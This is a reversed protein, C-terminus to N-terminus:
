RIPTGPTRRPTARIMTRGFAVFALAKSLESDVALVSRRQLNKEFLIRADQPRQPSIRPRVAGASRRPRPARLDEDSGSECRRARGHVRRADRRQEAARVERAGHSRSQVQEGSFQRLTRDDRAAHGEASRAARRARLRGALRVPLEARALGNEREGNPYVVHMEFYRGRYHQHPQVWVLKADSALTAEGQMEYNPDGPAIDINGNNTGTVTLHRVPPPGDALVIGVMSRDTEPKGTTTYHIEFVIDSGAAIFKAANGVTFKQGAVGPNDKALIDQM